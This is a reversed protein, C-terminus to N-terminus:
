VTSCGDSSLDHTQDLTEIGELELEEGSSVATTSSHSCCRFASLSRYLLRAVYGAAAVVLASATSSLVEVAISGLM